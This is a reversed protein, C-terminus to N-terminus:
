RYLRAVQIRTTKPVNARIRSPRKGRLERRPVDATIWGCTFLGSEARVRGISDLIFSDGYGFGARGGMMRGPETVTNAKVFWVANEVARAIRHNRVRQRHWDVDKMRIFSYHPEFIIRAGREALLLCPELTSAEYCIIVGFTVGRARFVPFHSVYTMLKQEQESGPISKRYVGLLKGRHVVVASNHFRRGRREALGIISVMEGFACRRVWDRFWESTVSVAGARLEEPTGYGSLFCEPMCAFDAGKRHAEALLRLTNAANKELAGPETPGQYAAIRFVDRAKPAVARRANV